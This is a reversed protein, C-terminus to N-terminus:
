LCTRSKKKKVPLIYRTLAPDEWGEEPWSVFAQAAHALPLAHALHPQLMDAWSEWRGYFAQLPAQVLSAVLAIPIQEPKHPDRSACTSFAQVGEKLIGQM